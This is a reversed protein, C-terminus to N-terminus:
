PSLPFLYLFAYLNAFHKSILDEQLEKLVMELDSEVPIPIVMFKQDRLVFSVHDVEQEDPNRDIVPKLEELKVM